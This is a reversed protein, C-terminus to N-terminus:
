LGSTAPEFGTGAVALNKKPGESESGTDTKTCGPALRSARKRPADAAAAPDRCTGPRTTETQSRTWAIASGTRGDRSTKPIPKTADIREIRHNTVDLQGRLQLFGIALIADIALSVGVPVILPRRSSRLYM